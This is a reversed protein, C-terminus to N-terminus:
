ARLTGHVDVRERLIALEDDTPARTVPVEDPMHLPFGTAQAVEARTVGEHLSRARMDGVEDFDFVGLPSLVLRVGGGPFKLRARETRDGLASILAVRDVFTRPSHNPMVIYYGACNTSITPQAISGPGRTKWGGEGDPIGILNLNGRQDLQMGGVFFVDPRRRADDFNHAVDMIAEGVLTRPDFLFPYVGPPRGGDGLGVVCYGVYIRAWPHTTLNAMVAAARAMPMNAGVMITRDEPRLDRALLVAFLENISYGLM